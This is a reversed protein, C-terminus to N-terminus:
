PKGELVRRLGDCMECDKGKSSRSCNGITSTIADRLREIERAQEDIQELAASCEQRIRNNNPLSGVLEVLRRYKAQTAGTM